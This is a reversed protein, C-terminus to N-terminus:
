AGGGLVAAELARRSQEAELPTKPMTVVYAITRGGGYKGKTQKVLVGSGARAAIRYAADHVASATGPANLIQKFGGSKFKIYTKSAAM